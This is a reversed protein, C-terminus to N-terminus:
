LEDEDVTTAMSGVVFVLTIPNKGRLVFLLLLHQACLGMRKFSWGYSSLLILRIRYFPCM